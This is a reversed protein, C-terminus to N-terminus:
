DHLSKVKELGKIAMAAARPEAQRKSKGTGVGILKGDLSVEVTHRRDHDPGAEDSVAYLPPENGLSQVHELLMIMLNEFYGPKFYLGREPTPLKSSAAGPKSDAM